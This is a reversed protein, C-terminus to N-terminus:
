KQMLGENNIGNHFDFSFFYDLTGNNLFYCNKNFSYKINFAEMQYPESILKKKEM